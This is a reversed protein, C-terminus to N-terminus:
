LDVHGKTSWNDEINNLVVNLSPVFNLLALHTITKIDAIRKSIYPVFEWYRLSAYAYKM